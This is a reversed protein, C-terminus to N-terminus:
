RVLSALRRRAVELDDVRDIDLLEDPDAKVIDAASLLSQAGRDGALMKLEGFWDGGFLAPPMTSEGNSSTARSSRGRHFALIRAYHERTVFPMDALAILVAHAGVSEAAAIGMAISLSLGAEPEPNAVTEFGPCDFRAEGMVIFRAAVPVELLTRAARLALPVGGLSAVLKDATGFRSSRGAALLLAAVTM